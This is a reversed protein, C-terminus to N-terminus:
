LQNAFFFMLIGVIIVIGVSVSVLPIITNTLYPRKDFYKKFKECKTLEVESNLDHEIGLTIEDNIQNELDTKSEDKGVLEIEVFYEKDNM